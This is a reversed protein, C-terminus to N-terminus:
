CCTERCSETRFAEGIDGFVAWSLGLGAPSLRRGDAAEIRSMCWERCLEAFSNVVTESIPATAASEGPVVGNGSPDCLFCGDKSLFQVIVLAADGESALRGKDEDPSFAIARLEVSWKDCLEVGEVVKSV